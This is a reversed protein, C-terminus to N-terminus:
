PPPQGRTHCVLVSGANQWSWVECLKELSKRLNKMVEEDYAIQQQNTPQHWDTVRDTNLRNVYLYTRYSLGLFAPGSQEVERVQVRVTVCERFPQLIKSAHYSAVGEIADPFASPQVSLEWLPEGLGASARDIVAPIEPLKSSRISIDFQQPPTPAARKYGSLVSVWYEEVSALLIPECDQPAGIEKGSQTRCLALVSEQAYTESQPRGRSPNLAHVIAMCTSGNCGFLEGANALENMRKVGDEGELIRSAPAWSFEAQVGPTQPESAVALRSKFPTQYLCPGPNTSSGSSCLPATSSSLRTITEQYSEAVATRTISVPLEFNRGALSPLNTGCSRPVIFIMLLLSLRIVTV